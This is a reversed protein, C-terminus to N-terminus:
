ENILRPTIDITRKDALREHAAAMAAGIDVTLNHDIQKTEGFRKRNWVSLLWKRTNIRLTSRAVDELSDDADAIALMESAVVEAGIEQAEYYRNKRAEDKHVWRLFHEYEPQRFDSRLIEKLAIGEAIKVLVWEFMNEFTLNDLDRAVATRRTADPASPWDHSPEIPEIPSDQAIPTASLFPPLPEVTETSGILWDPMTQTHTDM